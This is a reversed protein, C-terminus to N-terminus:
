ISKTIVINKLVGFIWTLYISKECKKWKFIQKKASGLLALMMWSLWHIEGKIHVGKPIIHSAKSWDSLLWYSISFFNDIWVGWELDAIPIVM